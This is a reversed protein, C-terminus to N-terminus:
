KQASTSDSGDDACDQASPAIGLGLSCAQATLQWLLPYFSAPAIWGQLWLLAARETDLEAPVDPAHLALPAILDTINDPLPESM